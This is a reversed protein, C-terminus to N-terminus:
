HPRATRATSIGRNLRLSFGPSAKAWGHSLAQESNVNGPIKPGDLAGVEIMARGPLLVVQAAHDLDQESLELFRLDTDV